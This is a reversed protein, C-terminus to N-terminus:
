PAASRGFVVYSEGANFAGPDAEAAGIILDDIGDGNVDGAESVSWGSYDGEDIGTLVFGRSGDGGGPPYLSALPVVAPFGQTSGYVVYSEGADADGGPDATIAGVIIDDIGDVNVDGAASVPFGSQDSADIGTLVFGRNGDGGGAPLLSALPVIAPFGQTSGFVVYSAGASTDGGPDAGSAGIILDDIGDANVDGAASVLAAFDNEDIGTLVFGHSGDGGGASYLTELPFRAPFGQTSGFVVYSAGGPGVGPAGIILDDIGDGNVDGAHSVSSGSRDFPNAGTLVFGRSGDGGGEPYLSSLRVVAPFGQTSGFVVYSEGASSRHGPDGEDAAIILDDIGDGNVDGAASVSSGSNDDEDIGTLVFGLSGDGGGGQSLGFLPLVAPFGQTSGFVVYSAGAESDGRPDGGWAGIILDGIGDGNVDGASSVVSGSFDSEGVGPLVFGRSGDGGNDPYLSTLEVIAPFTQTSGFVVYSEGADSDGPRDAGSAGIILDDIGDGNVDGAASAARGSYDREDIGTLVFGASGDGGGAPYLSGLPFVPPFPAGLALPAISAIGAAAVVAHLRARPVNLVRRVDERLTSMSTGPDIPCHFARQRTM